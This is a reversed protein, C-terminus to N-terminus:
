YNQEKGELLCFLIETFRCSSGKNEAGVASNRSLALSVGLAGGPIGGFVDNGLGIVSVEAM